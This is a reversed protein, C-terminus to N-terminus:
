EPITGFSHVRLNFPCEREYNNALGFAGTVLECILSDFLIESCVFVVKSERDELKVSLEPLSNDRLNDCAKLIRSVLLLSFVNPRTLSICTLGVECLLM